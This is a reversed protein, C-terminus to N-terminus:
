LLGKQQEMSRVVAQSRALILANMLALHRRKAALTRATVLHHLHARAQREHQEDSLSPTDKRESTGQTKEEPGDSSVDPRKKEGPPRSGHLLQWDRRAREIDHRSPRRKM